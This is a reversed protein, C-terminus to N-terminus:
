DLPSPAGVGQALESEWLEYEGARLRAKEPNRRIYRVCNAFHRADRVLRDFYDEQWLTGRRGLRRNIARASVSKWAGVEDELRASPHLSVLVHAHNPMAVWSHLAYRDDDRYRLTAALFGRIAPTRLWCAGHGADLWADVQGSFRRHYEREIEATWPEPHHGLWVAREAQWQARLNAPIADALRFTIFYTAGPQQWHPLLNKHRDIEAFPDFFRLEGM